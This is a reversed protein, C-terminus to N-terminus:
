LDWLDVASEGWWAIEASGDGDFDLTAVLELGDTVRDPGTMWEFTVGLADPRSIALQLIGDPGRFLLDDLGDGDLDAVALFESANRTSDDAGSWGIAPLNDTPGGLQLSLDSHQWLIESQGDGDFDGHGVIRLDPGQVTIATFETDRNGRLGQGGGTSIWVEGTVSDEIMWDGLGDGDFDALGAFRETPRLRIAEVLTSAPDETTALQAGDSVFIQGSPDTWVLDRWTDGGLEGSGALAVGAGVQQDVISQIWRDADSSAGHVPFRANALLLQERLVPDLLVVDSSDSPPSAEDALKSDTESVDSQTESALRLTATTATPEVASPASVAVAAEVTSNSNPEIAAHFRIPPSPQSAESQVGTSGQAVVFIRISDGPKGTIKIEPEAVSAAFAFNGSGNAKFVIYSDVPGESPTWAMLAETQGPPLDVPASSVSAVDKNSGSGGDCAVSVLAFFLLAGLMGLRAHRARVFLSHMPRQAFHHPTTQISM